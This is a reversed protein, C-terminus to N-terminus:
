HFHKCIGKAKCFNITYNCMIKSAIVWGMFPYFNVIIPLQLCSSYLLIEFYYIEVYYNSSLISRPTKKVKVLYFVYKSTSSKFIQKYNSWRVRVEILPGPVTIVFLSNVTFLCIDWFHICPMQSTVFLFLCLWRCFFAYHQFMFDMLVYFHKAQTLFFVSM